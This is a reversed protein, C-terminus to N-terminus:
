RGSSYLCLKQEAKLPHANPEGQQRTRRRHRSAMKARWTKAVRGLIKMGLTQVPLRYMSPVRPHPIPGSTLKPSQLRLTQYEDGPGEEGWLRSDTQQGRVDWSGAPTGAEATAGAHEQGARERM